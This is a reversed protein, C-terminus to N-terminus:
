KIITAPNGVVTAFDPVDKIVVAGAGVIAWKGIKIGPIIVAAAGIHAGEGVYINGCLTANPSIHAFDEIITDHEILAHTNIICHKGISVSSNITVGAMITTGSEIKTRVSIESRPHVASIFSFHSEIKEVVRKRIANDGIGIIVIKNKDFLDQSPKSLPYGLLINEKPTDDWVIIDTIKNAELIEIIVKGHGSGGYVIM